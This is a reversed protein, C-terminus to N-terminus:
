STWGGSLWVTQQDASPPRRPPLPHRRTLADGLRQNEAELDCGSKMNIWFRESTGSFCSVRLAAGVSIRRQGRVIENIRGALVGILRTLCHKWM